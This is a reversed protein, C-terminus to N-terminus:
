LEWGHTRTLLGGAAVGIAGAAAVSWSCCLSAAVAAAAIGAATLALYPAILATGLRGRGRRAARAAAAANRPTASICWPTFSCCTPTARPSLV